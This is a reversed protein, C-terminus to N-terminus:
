KTEKHIQHSNCTPCFKKIELRGPNNSKNKFTSYNRQLCGPCVLIVKQRM